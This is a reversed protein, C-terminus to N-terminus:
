KRELFERFAAKWPSAETFEQGDKDFVQVSEAYVILEYNLVDNADSFTTKVKKFLSSTEEGAFVPETYYYYGGLEADDTQAIYVWSEPLHDAYTDASVFITGDASFESRELIASDSFAAYVRIFCPITGTNKIKVDKKYINEGVDLKKPPVYDEQITITNTGVSIRNNVSKAHTFYAYTGGASVTMTLLILAIAAADKKNRM